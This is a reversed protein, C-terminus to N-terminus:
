TLTFAKLILKLFRPADEIVEKKVPKIAAMILAFAILLILQPLPWKFAPDHMIFLLASSAPFLVSLATTIGMKFGWPRNIIWYLVTTVAAGAYAGLIAAYLGLRSVLLVFVAVSTISGALIREIALWGRGSIWYYTMYVGDITSLPVVGAYLMIYPIAKTYNNNFIHLIPLLPTLLTTTISLLSAIALSAQAYDRSLGRLEVGVGLGRAALSGFVGSVSSNFSMLLSLVTITISYIGSYNPGLLKFILYTILNGFASGISAALWFQFGFNVFSRIRAKLFKYGLVLRPLAHIRSLYYSLTVIANLLSSIAIAYVNHIVIILVIESIRYTLNGLVSGLSQTVVRGTAWLYLGLAGTLSGILTSAARIYVIYILWRPIGDKIFIPISAIMAAVYGLTLTFSLSFMASYYPMVDGGSSHVMAAERAIANDIGFTPFFISIASILAIMANFYGYQTLPIYKTLLIVYVVALGYSIVTSAYSTLIGLVASETLLKPM